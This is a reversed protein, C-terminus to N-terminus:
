NVVLIYIYLHFPRGEKELSLHSIEL